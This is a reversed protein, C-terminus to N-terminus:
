GKRHSVLQLANKLMPKGQKAVQRGSPQLSQANCCPQFGQDHLADKCSHSPNESKDGIDKDQKQSQGNQLVAAVHGPHRIHHIGDHSFHSQRSLCKKGHDQAKATRHRGDHGGSGQLRLLVSSFGHKHRGEHGTRCPKGHIHQKRLHEERLM